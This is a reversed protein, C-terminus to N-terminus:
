TASPHPLLHAGGEQWPGGHPSRPSSSPARVVSNPARISTETKNRVRPEAPPPPPPSISITGGEGREPGSVTRNPPARRHSRYSHDTSPHHSWKKGRNIWRELFRERLPAGPRTKAGMDCAGRVAGRGTGLPIRLRNQNLKLTKTIRPPPSFNGALGVLTWDTSWHLRVASAKYEPPPRPAVRESTSRSTLGPLLLSRPPPSSPRTLALPPSPRRRAAPPCPNGDQRRPPTEVGPLTPKAGAASPSSSAWGSRL